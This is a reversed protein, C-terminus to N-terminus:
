EVGLESVMRELFSSLLRASDFDVIGAESDFTEHDGDDGEDDEDKEDDGDVRQM